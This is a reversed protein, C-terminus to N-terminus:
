DFITQRGKELEHKVEMGKIVDNEIQKVLDNLNSFKFEKRLRKIFFIDVKKIGTNERFNFLYTEIVPNKRKKGVYKRGTYTLGWYPRGGTIETLTVYVGPSVRIQDPFLPKINITPYGIKKGLGEGKIVKGELDYYRGLLKSAEMLRGQHIYEKIRSSGIKKNKYLLNKIVMTKFGYRESMKRLLGADGAKGRGFRFDEGIIIRNITFLRALHDIFYDPGMLALRKNFPIMILLDVGQKEFMRKRKAVPTLIGEDSKILLSRPKKKFTLVASMVHDKKSYEKLIDLIRIHGRHFADFTGISLNVKKNVLDKFRLNDKM